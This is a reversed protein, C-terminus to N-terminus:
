HKRLIYMQVARSIAHLMAPDVKKGEMSVCIGPIATSCVTAPDFGNALELVIVYGVTNVFDSCEASFNGAYSCLTNLEAIIESTTLNDYTIWQEAITAVWKCWYCLSSNSSSPVAAGPKLASPHAPRVVSPRDASAAVQCLCLLVVLLLPLVNCM